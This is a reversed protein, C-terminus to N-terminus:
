QQGCGVLRNRYALRAEKLAKRSTNVRPEFWPREKWAAPALTAVYYRELYALLVQLPDGHLPKRPSVVIMGGSLETVDRLDAADGSLTASERDADNWLLLTFLRVGSWELRKRSERAHTSSNEGADTILLISDGTKVPGFLQRAVDVADWLATKPKPKRQLNAVLEVHMTEWDDAKMVEPKEDFVVIGLLDEYPIAEVAEQAAKWSYPPVKKDQDYEMSSSRDLVVVVRPRQTLTLDLIQAPKGAVKVQLDDKTLDLVPRNERDVIELTTSVRDCNAQQAFAASAM